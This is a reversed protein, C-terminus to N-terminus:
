SAGKDMMSSVFSAINAASIKPLNFQYFIDIYEEWYNWYKRNRKKKM